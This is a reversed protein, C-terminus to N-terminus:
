RPDPTIELDDHGNQPMQALEEECSGAGNVKSDECTM